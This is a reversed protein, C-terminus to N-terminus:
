ARGRLKESYRKRVFKQIYSCLGRGQNALSKMTEVHNIGTSNYDYRYLSSDNFSVDIFNSSYTYEAVSSNGNLNLYRQM